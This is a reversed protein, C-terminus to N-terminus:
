SLDTQVRDTRTAVIWVLTLLGDHRDALNATVFVVLRNLYRNRALLVNKIRELAGNMAESRATIVATAGDDTVAHLSTAAHETAYM